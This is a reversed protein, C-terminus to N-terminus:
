PLPFIKLFCLEFFFVLQIINFPMPATRPSKRQYNFIVSYKCIEIDEPAFHKECTYVTDRKIQERLDEHVERTKKLEDLWEDRWKKQIENSALPLKFIGIGKTRRCADCGIVACNRGPM